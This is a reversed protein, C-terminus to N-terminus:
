KKILSQTPVTTSYCRELSCLDLKPQAPLETIGFVMLHLGGPELIVAQGAKIPLQHIQRMKMVGDKHSHTHIEVSGAGELRAETLIIDDASTNRITMFAATISRGPIPQRVFGDEIVLEALATLSLSLLCVVRVVQNLVKMHMGIKTMIFLALKSVFTIFFLSM